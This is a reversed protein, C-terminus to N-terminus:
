AAATAARGTIVLLREGCSCRLTVEIGRATNTISEISEVSYFSRGGHTPCYAVFM